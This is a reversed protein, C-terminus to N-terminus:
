LLLSPFCAFLNCMHSFVTLFCNLTHKGHICNTSHPGSPSHQTELMGGVPHIMDMVPRILNM